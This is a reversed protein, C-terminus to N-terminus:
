RQGQHNWEQRRYKLRLLNRAAEMEGNEPRAEMLGAGFVEEFAESVAAKLGEAIAPSVGAGLRPQIRGQFVGRMLREDYMFPISGQQLIGDPWRRQASGILKARGESLEGYSLADFCLPSKSEAEAGASVAEAGASVAEAGDLKTESGIGAKEFAVSFARSILRYSERLGKGFPGETKICFSYTLEVGHLIARGGTPRRLVPIGNLACFELDIDQIPQFRGLTVSPTEWGYLRLTPPVRGARVGLSLAEDLAMNMHAEGPGSDILRWVAPADPAPPAPPAAPTM